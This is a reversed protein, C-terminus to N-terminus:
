THQRQHTLHAAPNCNTSQWSMTINTSTQVVKIGTVKLPATTDLTLSVEDERKKKTHKKLIKAKVTYKGDSCKVGANNKGDWELNVETNRGKLKGSYTKVITDNNNKISVEYKAGRQLSVFSIKTTERRGDGNPSFIDPSATLGQVLSDDRKIKYSYKRGYSKIDTEKKQWPGERDTGLHEVGTGSLRINKIYNRYFSYTDSFTIDGSKSDAIAETVDVQFTVWNNKPNINDPAEWSIVKGNVKIEVEDAIAWDYGEWTLFYKKDLSAQDCTFNIEASETIIGDTDESIARLTYSNNTMDTLEVVFEGDEYVCSKGVGGNVVLSIKDQTNDAKIRVKINRANWVMGSIPFVINVEQKIKTLDYNFTSGNKDPNFPNPWHEALINNEYLSVNDITITNKKSSNYFTIIGQKAEGVQSAVDISYKRKGNEIVYATKSINVKKTNVVIDISNIKSTNETFFSLTYSASLPANIAIVKVSVTDSRKWGNGYAKAEIYHTGPVIGKWNYTWSNQTGTKLEARRWKGTDIRVYVRKVEGTTKLNIEYPNTNVYGGNVLDTFSVTPRYENKSTYAIWSGAPIIINVRGNKSTQVDPGIGAVAKLTTNYFSTSVRVSQDKEGANIGVLLNGKREFVMYDRSKKRFRMPGHAYKERLELLKKMVENGLEPKFVSPTGDKLILFVRAMNKLDSEALYSNGTINLSADHYFTGNHIREFSSSNNTSFASKVDNYLHHDVVDMGKKVYKNLVSVKDTDVDAICPVGSKAIMNLLLELPIDKANDFVLGDAGIESVIWASWNELYIKVVDDTLDLALDSRSLDVSLYVKIGMLHANSILSILEGKAGLITSTGGVVTTDGIDYLGYPDQTDKLPNVRVPFPLWAVGYGDNKIEQLNSNVTNYHIGSVTNELPFDQYFVDSSFAFSSAILVLFIIISTLTTRKM